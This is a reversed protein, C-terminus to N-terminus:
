RANPEFKNCNYEITEGMKVFNTCYHHTENKAKNEIYKYNYHKCLTCNNNLRESVNHIACQKCERKSFLRKIWNM